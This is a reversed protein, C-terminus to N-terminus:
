NNKLDDTDFALLVTKDDIDVANELQVLEKTHKNLEADLNKNLLELLINM